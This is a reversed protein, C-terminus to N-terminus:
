MYFPICFSGKPDKVGSSPVSLNKRFTRLFNGSIAAHYGLLASNEDNRRRFGSIFCVGLIEDLIKSDLKVGYASLKIPIM